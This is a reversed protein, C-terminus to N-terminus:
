SARKSDHQHCNTLTAQVHMLNKNISKKDAFIWQDLKFKLLDLSGDFEVASHCIIDAPFGKKACGAVQPTESDNNSDGEEGL